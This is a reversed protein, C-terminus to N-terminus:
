PRPRDRHPHRERPPHLRVFDGRAVDATFRTCSDRCSCRECSIGAASGIAVDVSARREVLLWTAARPGPPRPAAVASAPLLNPHDHCGFENVVPAIPARKAGSRRLAGGVEEHTVVLADVAVKLSSILSNPHISNSLIQSSGTANPSRVDCRYLGSSEANLPTDHEQRRDPHLGKPSRKMGCRPRPSCRTTRCM